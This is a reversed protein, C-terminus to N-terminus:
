RRGQGRLFRGSLPDVKTSFARSVSWGRRLRSHLTQLSMELRRAWESLVHTEGNFTIRRNSRINQMQQHKTAWRCNNPEYDGDNDIRDISHRPSTRPGMDALFNAFSERWRDCVKIGRGGYDEWAADNRNTCRGIMHNWIRNEPTRRERFASGHKFNAVSVVERQLCGCSKTRGSSLQGGVVITTKGCDCTARWLSKEHRSLGVFEVVLLRDFRIGTLDLRKGM